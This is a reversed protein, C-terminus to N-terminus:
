EPLLLSLAVSATVGVARAVGEDEEDKADCGLSKKEGEEARVTDAWELEEMVGMGLALLVPVGGKLVRVASPVRAEGTDVRLEEAEAVGEIEAKPM